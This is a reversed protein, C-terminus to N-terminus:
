AGGGATAASPATAEAVASAQLFFRAPTAPSATADAAETETVRVIYTGAESFDPWEGGETEYAVTDPFNVSAGEGLTLRVVFDRAKGEVPDPFELSAAGAAPVAVGNIARDALPYTLVLNPPAIEAGTSDYFTPEDGKVSYDFTGNPLWYTVFGLDPLRMYWGGSARAGIEVDSFDVADGNHDKVTVGAPLSAGSPEPALLSYPLDSELAIDDNPGVNLFKKAM